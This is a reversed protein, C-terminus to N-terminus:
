RPHIQAILAGSPSARLWCIYGSMSRFHISIAELSHFSIFWGNTLDARGCFRFFGWIPSGKDAPEPKYQNLFMVTAPLLSFNRPFNASMFPLVERHYHWLGMAIGLQNPWSSVIIMTFGSLLFQGTARKDRFGIWFLWSNSDISSSASIDTWRRTSKKTCCPLFRKSFGSATALGQLFGSARRISQGLRHRVREIESHSRTDREQLGVYHPRM